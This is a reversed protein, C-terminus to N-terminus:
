FSSLDLLLTLRFIMYIYKLLMGNSSTSNNKREQHHFSHVYPTKRNFNYGPSAIVFPKLVRCWNDMELRNEAKLYHIKSTTKIGISFAESTDVEANMLGICDDLSINGM